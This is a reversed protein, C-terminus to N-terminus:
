SLSQNNKLVSKLLYKIYINLKPENFAPGLKKKNEYMCTSIM